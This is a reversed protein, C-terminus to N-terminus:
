LKVITLTELDEDLTAKIRVHEGNITNLSQFTISDGSNRLTGTNESMMYLRTTNDLGVQLLNSPDVLPIIYSSTRYASYSIDDNFGNKIQDFNEAKISGSTGSLQMAWTNSNTIMSTQEERFSFEPINYIETEINGASNFKFKIYMRTRDPVVEGYTNEYASVEDYYACILRNHDEDQYSDVLNRKSLDQVTYSVYPCNDNQKIFLLSPEGNDYVDAKFAKIKQANEETLVGGVSTTLDLKYAKMDIEEYLDNNINITKYTGDDSLFKTGDGNAVLEVPLEQQPVSSYVGKDNLFKTGDGSNSIRIMNERVTVEASRNGVTDTLKFKITFMSLTSDQDSTHQLQMRQITCDIYSVYDVYWMKDFVKNTGINESGGNQVFLVNTILPFENYQPYKEKYSEILNYLSNISRGDLSYTFHGDQDTVFMKLQLINKSDVYGKLKETYYQLGSYDLYKM